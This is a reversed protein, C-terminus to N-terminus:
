GWTRRCCNRARVRDRRQLLGLGVEPGLASTSAYGLRVLDTNLETVDAGTMGESLDRYAPVNGYLLVM